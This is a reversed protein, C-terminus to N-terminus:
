NIDFGGHFQFHNCLVDYHSPKNFQSFQLIPKIFFFLITTNWFISKIIKM